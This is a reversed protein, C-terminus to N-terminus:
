ENETEITSGRFWGFISGRNARKIAEDESATQEQVLRLPRLQNQKMVAGPISGQQNPRESGLHPAISSGDTNSKHEDSHSDSAVSNTSSSGRNGSASPTRITSSASAGFYSGPGPALNPSLPRISPSLPGGSTTRMPSGRNMQHVVAAATMDNQAQDSRARRHGRNLPISPATDPNENASPAPAAPQAYSMPRARGGPRQVVSRARQLFGTAAGALTAAAVPAQQDPIAPLAKDPRSKEPPPPPPEDRDQIIHEFGPHSLLRGVIKDIYLRLAEIEAKLSKNDSELKRHAETSGEPLEEDGHETSELEEALSSMGRSGETNPDHHMFEGKLTKERLLLEYSENEEKLRANSMKYESVQQELDQRRRDQLHEQQALKLQVETLEIQLSNITDEKQQLVYALNSPLSPISQGERGASGDGGVGDDLNHHESMNATRSANYREIGNLRLTENLRGITAQQQVQQTIHKDQEQQLLKEDEVHQRELERNHTKLDNIDAQLRNLETQRQLDREEAVTQEQRGKDLDKQIAQLEQKYQVEAREAKEAREELRRILEVNRYKNEDEEVELDANGFSSSSRNPTKRLPRTQRYSPTRALGTGTSAPVSSPITPRSPSNENPLRRSPTNSPPIRSNPTAM